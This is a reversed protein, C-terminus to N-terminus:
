ALLSTLLNKWYFALSVYYFHDVSRRMVDALLTAWLAEESLISSSTEAAFDAEPLSWAVFADVAAVAACHDFCASSMPYLDM